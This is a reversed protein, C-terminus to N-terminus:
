MIMLIGFFALMEENSLDLDVGKQRSFPQDMVEELYSEIFVTFIM